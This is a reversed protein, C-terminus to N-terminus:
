CEGRVKSRRERKLLELMALGQELTPTKGVPSGIPGRDSALKSSEHSSQAAGMSPM